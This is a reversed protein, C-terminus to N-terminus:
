GKACQMSVNHADPGFLLLATIAMSAFFAV